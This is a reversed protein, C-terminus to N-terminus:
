SHKGGVLQTATGQEVALLASTSGVLVATYNISTSVVLLWSSDVCLVYIKDLLWGKNLTLSDATHAMAARRSSNEHNHHQQQLARAGKVPAQGAAVWSVLVTHVVRTVISIAAKAQQTVRIVEPGLRLALLLFV